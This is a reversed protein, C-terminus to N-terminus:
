TASRMMRARTSVCADCARVAPELQEVARVASCRQLVLAAVHEDFRRLEGDTLLRRADAADVADHALDIEHLRLPLLRDHARPQRLRDIPHIERQPLLRQLYSSLVVRAAQRGDSARLRAM